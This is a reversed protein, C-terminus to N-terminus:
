SVAKLAEGYEDSPEGDLPDLSYGLGGRALGELAARHIWTLLNMEKPTGSLDAMM